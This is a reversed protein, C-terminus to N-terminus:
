KIKKYMGHSTNEFYEKNSLFTQITRKAMGFEEGLLIAESTSFCDPIRSIFRKKDETLQDLKSQEDNIISLVRFSCNIFYNCLQHAGKVAKLSIEENDSQEMIQLVLALRTFHIDFKSLIEGKINQRNANVENTLNRQWEYFYVKAEPSFGYVKSIPLGNEKNISVINKYYFSKIFTKFSKIKEKDIENDNIPHKISDHPFAFLFRQLFGNDIKSAPFVRKLVRPQITGIINLFPRSIHFPVPRSVRDITISKNSWYSLFTSLQDTKSYNNMGELFTTLEDTVIACGRPNESLRQHLIEPTFNNLISKILTPKEIVPLDAKEKKTLAEYDEYKKLKVRFEEINTRDIETLEEFCQSLPHSKNVGANGIMAIYFSSYDYWQDKIKLVASTGVVTSVASLIAVGTYDMEFNLAKNADIIIDRFLEPFVEVPFKISNNEKQTIDINVEALFDSKSIATLDFKPQISELIANSHSNKTTDIM